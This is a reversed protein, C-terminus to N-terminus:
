EAISSILEPGIKWFGLIGKQDFYDGKRNAEKLEKVVNKFRDDFDVDRVEGVVM